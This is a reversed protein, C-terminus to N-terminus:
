LLKASNLIGKRFDFFMPSRQLFTGLNQCSLVSTQHLSTRHKQNGTGEGVFFTKHISPLIADAGEIVLM